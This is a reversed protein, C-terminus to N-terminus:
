QDQSDSDNPYNQVTIDLPIIYECPDSTDEASVQNTNADANYNEANPDTCGYIFPVCSGNDTNANPNYNFMTPDTCGYVIDVCSGDDINAEPNYNYSGPNTCGYVSDICSGDDITAISSYNFAGPDTCGFTDDPSGDGCSGDDVNALPNYYESDSNTCGYVITVCETGIQIEGDPCEEVVQEVEDLVEDVGDSPDYGTCDNYSDCCCNDCPMTANPMFNFASGDMCGVVYVCSGDDSAAMPNYNEALPDTCGSDLTTYTDYNCPSENAPSGPGVANINASPNYNTATPDMCGYVEVFDDDTVTVDTDLEFTACSYNEVPVFSAANPGCTVVTEGDVDLCYGDQTAAPNYNFATPNMCGIYYGQCEGQVHYETYPNYLPDAPDGCGLVGYACSGDDFTANENYNSANVDMCGFVYTVTEQGPDVILEDDVTGTVIADESLTGVGQVTIESTDIENNNNYIGTIGQKSLRSFWKGEKDKFEINLGSQLDTQCSPCWWGNKDFLNYYENDNLDVSVTQASLALNNVDLNVNGTPSSLTTGSFSTTKAQSGEYNITRFSKVVSPADNFMITVQSPVLGMGYFTNRDVNDSHHEWIKHKNVSYYKGNLSLAQSPIFSKFSVWGKTTESFSITKQSNYTDVFTESLQMSLNYEKAVIDFSGVMAATDPMQKRFFNSMGVDSIPTLGDKSLRLVAGRAKDTFYMRYQDWALSEPNKSIGYDGAYPVTQGLVRDTATLQANGDANFLADKNALIKLVKDETFVVADTDRSKLRQISGFRPNLNKTIKEAQNFENLKNVQSISNYIGSYIMGSSINEKQYGSFTSSAKVGNDLQPANFDDATRDSEVGNGFSYCNHWALTVPNKWVEIDIGYYGTSELSQIKPTLSTVAQQEASLTNYYAEYSDALISDNPIGNQTLTAVSIQIGGQGGYSNAYGNIQIGSPLPINQTVSDVDVVFSTIETGEPPLNETNFGYVTVGNQVSTIVEYEVPNVEEFAKSGSIVGSITDQQQLSFYQLNLPRHMSVVKARTIIGDPRTFELEDGITINSNVLSLNNNQDNYVLAMIAVNSDENTFHINNLRTTNQGGLNANINAFPKIENKVNNIIRFIKVLSNPMAFDFANDENLVTPIASSAEYYLELDLDEKPETEWCAGKEADVSAEGGSLGGIDVLSRLQLVISNEGDHRLYSRPDFTNLDLGLYPADVQNTQKNLRRFEIRYSHRWYKKGDNSGDLAITNPINEAECASIYDGEEEVPEGTDDDITTIIEHEGAPMYNLLRDSQHSIGITKYYYPEGADSTDDEFNFVQDPLRLLDLAEPNTDDVNDVVFSLVMAGMTGEQAGRTGNPNNLIGADFPIPKWGRGEEEGRNIYTLAYEQQTPGYGQGIGGGYNSNAVGGNGPIEQNLTTSNCYAGYAVSASDIFVRGGYNGGWINKWWNENKQRLNVGNGSNTGSITSNDYCAGMVSVNQFQTFAMAAQANYGDAATDSGYNQATPDLCGTEFLNNYDPSQPQLIEPIYDINFTVEYYNEFSGDGDFDVTGDPVFQEWSNDVYDFLGAFDPAGNGGQDFAAPNDTSSMLGMYVGGFWNGAESSDDFIAQPDVTSITPLNSDNQYSSNIYSISLQNSPIYQLNLGPVSVNESILIDKKIKVFFKGDFEPKNETQVKRFEVIYRLGNQSGYGPSGGEAVFTENGAANLLQFRTLMDAGGSGLKDFKSDWSLRIYNESGSGQENVVYSWSTLNKWHSTLEAIVSTNELMQGVIRIQIGENPPRQQTGYFPDGQSSFSDDNDDFAFFGLGSLRWIDARLEMTETTFLGNPVADTQISNWMDNADTFDLQDWVTGAVAGNDGGTGESGTFQPTLGYAGASVSPYQPLTGYKKKIFDPAENKIALIKYRAKEFVPVNTGHQNKLILYTQEDVKNRDASNFSMWITGGDGADYWRDMILNYYENSTEKIYYKAYDIWNNQNMFDDDSAQTVEFKNQSASLVKDITLNGDFSSFSTDDSNAITYKSTLVPTERGYKDGYVIGIKYDRLSKISKKPNTLTATNESVIKPILNVYSKIDYGQTYNGYIVRNAIIEQALATRPVNDWTRLSQNEEVVRHIMESTISLEGTQIELTTDVGDPTFVEWQNDKVKKVTEVIYVNASDTTKFLIDVEKVDLPIKYPIFDKIKLNRITNIMGLNHGKTHNYEYDDPLFAIESWPSFSSYEGDEYKYRYGFRPFKFEFLPKELEITINWTDNQQQVLSNNSTIKVKITNTVYSVDNLGDQYSIFQASINIQEDENSEDAQQFNLIDGAIYQSNLLVDDTIYHIEGTNLSQNFNNDVFQYSVVFVSDVDGRQLKSMELTPATRPAKRIVTIDKETLDSNIPDSTLQDSISAADVLEGTSPDEVYLKTHTRGNQTAGTPNSGIRCRDINIKKPETRSDTWFLLNDIVNIGTILNRTHTESLLDGQSFNLVREAEFLFWVGGENINTYVPENLLLINNTTDIDKIIAKNPLISEGSSNLVDVTMDIRYFSADEVPIEAWGSTPFTYVYYNSNGMVGLMTDITGFHDVVIPRSTNTYSDHEIITDIYLRKQGSTQPSTALLPPHLSSAFFFYAKNTKEDAVSAVCKPYQPKSSSDSWNIANDSMWEDFYSAGVYENGKINQVTGSANDSSTRVQVNLADRYEGNKVLREDLDKNMKGATFTHKIEPM